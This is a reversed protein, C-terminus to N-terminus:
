HFKHRQLHQLVLLLKEKQEFTLYGHREVSGRLKERWDISFKLMGEILFLISVNRYQSRHIYLKILLICHINILSHYHSLPFPQPKTCSESQGIASYLLPPVPQVAAVPLRLTVVVRHPM